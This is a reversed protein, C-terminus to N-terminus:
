GTSSSRVTNPTNAFCKAGVYPRTFRAPNSFIYADGYGTVRNTLSCSKSGGDSLVCATSIHLDLVHALFISAAASFVDAHRTRFVNALGRSINTSFKPVIALPEFITVSITQEFPM